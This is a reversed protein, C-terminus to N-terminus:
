RWWELPTREAQMREVLALEAAILTALDPWEGVVEGRPRIARIRTDVWFYGINEDHSWPRGGFHFATGSEKYERAWDRNAADLDLPQPRSRDLLPPERQLSPPLGFLSLGCAECGNVIRLFDAYGAPIPRGVRQRFREIWAKKAPPFLRFAYAEPGIWPMHGIELTDDTAIASCYQAYHGAREALSTWSPGLGKLRELIKQQIPNMSGRRTSGLSDRNLQPRSGGRAGWAGAGAAAAAPRM